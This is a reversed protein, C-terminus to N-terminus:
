AALAGGGYGHVAAEAEHQVEGEGRAEAAVVEHV